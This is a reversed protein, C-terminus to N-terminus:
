VFTFRRVDAIGWLGAAAYYRMTIDTLTFAANTLALSEGGTYFGAGRTLERGGAADQTVRLHLEQGDYAAGTPADLTRNGGIRLDWIDAAECSVSIKPADVADMVRPAELKRTNPLPLYGPVMQIDTFEVWGAAANDGFAFYPLRWSGSTESTTAFPVTFKEWQTSVNIARDGARNSGGFQRIGAFVRFNSYSARASFTLTYPEGIIFDVDAAVTARYVGYGEATTQAAPKTVRLSTAESGLWEPHNKTIRLTPPTLGEIYSENWHATSSPISIAPPILGRVVHPIEPKAARVARNISRAVRQKQEVNELQMDTTTGQVLFMILATVRPLEGSALLDILGAYWTGKDHGNNSEACGTECIWIDRSTFREVTSVFTRLTAGVPTWTASYGTAESRNYYSVGILDVYDDGVYGVEVDLPDPSNTASNSTLFWQIIPSTVGMKRALEVVMKFATKYSEPTNGRDVNFMEWPYNGGANGEHFPALYVRDMHGTERIANFLNVLYNYMGTKSNMESIFDANNRWIELAYMIKRTPTLRLEHGIEVRYSDATKEGVARYWPVIDFKTNYEKEFKRTEGYYELPNTSSNRINAGVLVREAKLDNARTISDRLVKSEQYIQWSGDGVPILEFETVGNAAKNVDLEGYIAPGVTVGKGGNADQTLVVRVPQNTPWAPNVTLAFNSAVMFRQIDVAGTKNNILDVKDNITKVFTNYAITMAKENAIIRNSLTDLDANISKVVDNLIQQMEEPFTVNVYDRIKYLLDAFTMGDRYTFPAINPLPYRGSALTGMTHLVM